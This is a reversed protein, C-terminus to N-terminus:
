YHLDQSCRGRIQCIEAETSTGITTLENEKQKTWTLILQGSSTLISWHFLSHNKKRCTDNFEQNQIHHRYIFDGQISWSDERAEADVKTEESQFEERDGQSEGSLNERSVTFERRLTPEQLEYDRERQCNQQVM